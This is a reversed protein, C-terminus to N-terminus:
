WAVDSLPDAVVLDSARLGLSRREVHCRPHSSHRPGSAPRPAPSRHPAPSPSSEVPPSRRHDRHTPQERTALPRVQENGQVSCRGDSPSARRDVRLPRHGAVARTHPGRRRRHRLSASPARDILREVSDTTLRQRMSPGVRATPSASSRHVLREPAQMAATVRRATMRGVQEMMSPSLRNAWWLVKVRGPVVICKPVGFPRGSLAARAPASRTSRTPSAWVTVFRVTRAILRSWRSRQGTWSAPCVPGMRAPARSM